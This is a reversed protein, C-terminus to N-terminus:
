RLWLTRVCVSVCQTLVSVACIHQGCSLGVPGKLFFSPDGKQSVQTFCLAVLVTLKFMFINKFCQNIKATNHLSQHLLQVRHAFHVWLNNDDETMM